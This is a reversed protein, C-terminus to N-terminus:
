KIKKEMKYVKFKSDGIEWNTYEKTKKYGLKEYFKIATITPYLGAVKLGKKKSYNEIFIMLKRGYGKGIQNYKVYLCGIIEKNYLGVTGILKKGEILCFINDNKIHELMHSQSQKKIWAKVFSKPYDKSNIKEFTERKLNSIKLADKSTAKRIKM